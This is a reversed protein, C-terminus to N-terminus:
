AGLGKLDRRRERARIVLVAMQDLEDGREVFSPLTMEVTEGDADRVLTIHHERTEDNREFPMFSWGDAGPVPITRQGEDATARSEADDASFM